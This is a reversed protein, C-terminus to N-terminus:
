ELREPLFPLAAKIVACSWRRPLILLVIGLLLCSGIFLGLWAEFHSPVPMDGPPPTPFQFLTVDGITRSAGM